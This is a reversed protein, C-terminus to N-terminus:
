SISRSSRWALARHGGYLVLAALTAPAGGAVVGWASVMGIVAFAALVSVVMPTLRSPNM